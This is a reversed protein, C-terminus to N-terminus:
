ISANAGSTTNTANCARPAGIDGNGAGVEDGGTCGNGEVDAPGLPTPNTVPNTSETDQNTFCGALAAVALAASLLIAPRVPAADGRRPTLTTATGEKGGDEKGRRVVLWM